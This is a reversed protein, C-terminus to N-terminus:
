VLSTTSLMMSTSQNLRDTLGAVTAAMCVALPFVAFQRLVMPRLGSHSRRNTGRSLPVPHLVPRVPCRQRRIPRCYPGATSTQSKQLYLRYGSQCNGSRRRRPVGSEEAGVESRDDVGPYGLTHESWVKQQRRCARSNRFRGGSGEGAQSGGRQENSAARADLATHSLIDLLSFKSVM